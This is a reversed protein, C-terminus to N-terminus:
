RTGVLDLRKPPRSAPVAQALRLPAPNIRHRHSDAARLVTNRRGMVVALLPGTAVAAPLHAAPHDMAVPLHAAPHDMAVPHHAAPHDMAVPHHAAPHVVV